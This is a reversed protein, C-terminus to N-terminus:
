HFCMFVSIPNRQKLQLIKTTNLWKLIQDLGLHQLYTFAIPNIYQPAEQLTKM